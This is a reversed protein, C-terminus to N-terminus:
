SVPAGLFAVKFNQVYPYYGGSRKLKLKVTHEGSALDRLVSDLLMRTAYSTGTITFEFAQVDDIDIAAYTTANGSSKADVQVSFVGFSRASLTMTLTTKVVYTYSSSESYTTPDEDAWNAGGGGGGAADVKEKTALDKADSYPGLYKRGAM